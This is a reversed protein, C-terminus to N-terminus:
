NAVDLVLFDLGELVREVSGTGPRAMAQWFVCVNGLGISIFSFCWVGLEEVALEDGAVSQCNRISEVELVRM